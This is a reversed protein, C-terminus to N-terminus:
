EGELGLDTHPGGWKNSSKKRLTWCYLATGGVPSRKWSEGNELTVPFRLWGKKVGEGQNGGNDNISSLSRRKKCDV